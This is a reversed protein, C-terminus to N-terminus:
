MVVDMMNEDSNCFSVYKTHNRENKVYAFDTVNRRM